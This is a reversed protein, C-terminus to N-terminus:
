LTGDLLGLDLAADMLENMRDYADYREVLVTGGLWVLREKDWHSKIIELQQTPSEQVSM